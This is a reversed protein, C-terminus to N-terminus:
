KAYVNVFNPCDMYGYNGPCIAWGGFKTTNTVYTNNPVLLHCTPLNEVFWTQWQDLMEVRKEYDTEGQMALLLDEQEQSNFEMFNLTQGIGFCTLLTTDVDDITGWSSYSIDYKHGQTVNASFTAADVPQLVLEIGAEKMGAQLISMVGDVNALTSKYMITFSLKKGDATERIGDGDTDKYGAEELLTGAAATDYAPQTINSKVFETYVPSIPTEMATAAGAFAVNVLADRNVCMAIAQRIKVETLLDNTQSFSIFAYGLSPVSEILYEPNNQLQTVSSASLFNACVDVEGNQLALIMANEDTYVRFVIEDLLAGQGDNELTFYPNRSLVVYEGDVWESVYYPGYGAGSYDYTTPDEVSEWESKRMIPIWYGAGNWFNVNGSTLHFEVTREDVVKSAEFDVLAFYSDFFGIHHSTGYEATFLLDDASVPTGDNWCLGEKMTITWVTCDENVQVPENLYDYKVGNEDMAVFHPCVLEMITASNLDNQCWVNESIPASNLGVNITGGKKPTGAEGQSETGDKAETEGGAATGGAAGTQAPKDESGGCATLSLVLMLALTLSLLKKM